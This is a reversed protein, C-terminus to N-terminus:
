RVIQSANRTKTGKFVMHELLHSIGHQDATEYRTGVDIWVGCSVTEVHPNAETVVRLGNELTTIKATM